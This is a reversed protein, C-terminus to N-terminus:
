SSYHDCLDGGTQVIFSPDTIHSANYFACTGGRGNSNRCYDFSYCEFKDNTLRTANVCAYACNDQSFTAQKYLIKNLDIRVQNKAKNFQM